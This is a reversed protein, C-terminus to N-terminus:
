STRRRSLRHRLRTGIASLGGPEFLVILIVAVGYLIATIKGADYGGSGAAAVFPLSDSYRSLLVPLVTVFVAGISAGGISGLGGIVVMALYSISLPLIFYDPTVRTFALSVLVGALGAYMSSLIFVGAKTLRIDVGMTAAAVESDRMTQMARGMRGRLVNKGFVYALVALVLFLYWLREYRGFPVNLVTLPPHDAAFRFGLISFDTAPRGNFGGTLDRVNEYIFSGIFVLSLSAVGLYIGRLRSAIPSFLLGAVGAALVALVMALVPPLGLGAAKSARSPDPVGSLYSYSYAGVALFFAHALSLQGAAGTLITLGIAGIVAAMAFLGAQLLSTDLYFPLVALVAVLGFRVLTAPAPRHRRVRGTVAQTVATEVVTGTSEDVTPAESM